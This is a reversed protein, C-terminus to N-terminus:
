VAPPSIGMASVSRELDTCMARDCFAATVVDNSGRCMPQHVSPVRICIDQHKNPLRPSPVEIDSGAVTVQRMATTGAATAM